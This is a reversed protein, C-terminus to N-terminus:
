IALMALDYLSSHWHKLPIGFLDIKCALSHRHLLYCVLECVFIYTCVVFLDGQIQHQLLYHRVPKLDGKVSSVFCFHQDDWSQPLSSTKTLCPSLYFLVLYELQITSYGTLCLTAISPIHLLHNVTFQKCCWVPNLLFTFFVNSLVTVNINHISFPCVMMPSALYTLLHTKRKHM